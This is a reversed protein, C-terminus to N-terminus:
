VCIEDIEANTIATDAAPITPKDTLDNYSGSTAVTKLAPKDTLDNYSGSTAVAKLTPKNKISAMGSTANWDTQVQAAPITPKDTVSGWALSLKRWKGLTADVSNSSNFIYIEGGIVVQYDDPYDADRTAKLQEVTLEQRAFDKRRSKLDFNQNITFAM